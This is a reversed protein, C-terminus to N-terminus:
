LFEADSVDEFVDEEKLEPIIKVKPFSHDEDDDGYTVKITMSEGKKDKAVKKVDEAFSGMNEFEIEEGKIGSVLTVALGILFASASPKNTSKMVQNVFVMKNSETRFSVKLMPLGSKSQSPELSELKAKYTGEEIPDFKSRAEIVEDAKAINNFREWVNSM